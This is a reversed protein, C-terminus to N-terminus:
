PYLLTKTWRGDANEYLTREHLRYPMGKWFELRLPTVRNGVWHAPRPITKGEYQAKVTEIRALFEARNAMPRSQISAWGGIQSDRPRSAWYEDAEASTARTVTGEVIVQKELPGWYFCLAVRPNATLDRGKRSELNTYFVFGDPGFSKLLVTRISPRGEASATALTMSTPEKLGCSAAGTYEEAFRTM